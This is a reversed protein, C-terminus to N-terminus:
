PKRRKNIYKTMQQIEKDRSGYLKELSYNLLEFGNLLDDNSIDGDHSGTNGIWKIAMLHQAVDSNEDNRKEFIDIRQHLTFKTRPKNLHKKFKNVKKDTLIIEVSKRIANACAAKDIWFVKFAITIAEEVEWPTDEPLKFINVIPYIYETYYSEKNFIQEEEEDFDEEIIFRGAITYIENCKSDSCKITGHFHNALYYPEEGVWNRDYEKSANTQCVIIKNSEFVLRSKKCTSCLWNPLQDYTFYEEFSDKDIEM